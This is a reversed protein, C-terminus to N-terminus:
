ECDNGIGHAQCILNRVTEYEDTKMNMGGGKQKAEPEGHWYIHRQM